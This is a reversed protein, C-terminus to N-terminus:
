IRTSWRPRPTRWTWPSKGRRHHRQLGAHRHRWGVRGAHRHGAGTDTDFPYTDNGAGGTLTDDGGEGIITDNGSGTTIVDNGDGGFVTIAHAYTAASLTDDGTGLEIQIPASAAALSGFAIVDAADLTRLTISTVDSVPVKFQTTGTPVFTLATDSFLYKDIGAENVVSVTLNSTDGPTVQFIEIAGVLPAVDYALLRREELMEVLLRRRRKTTLDDVLKRRESYSSNKRIRNTMM